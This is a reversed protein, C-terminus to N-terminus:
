TGNRPERASTPSRARAADWALQLGHGGIATCRVQALSDVIADAATLRDDPYTGRVALAGMGAAKGAAVGAPTDEIVVCASPAHGLAAAARLYGEPDPKGRRVDAGTVFVPPEPIRGVRMRLRAVAPSGSTVVAWQTRSLSALLDHAGPAVQVGREETEELADLAAVEAAIDLHPAVERLTESVRRGHGVRLIAVADLGHRGAWERWVIEIARRSDV